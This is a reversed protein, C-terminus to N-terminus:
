SEALPREVDVELEDDWSPDPVGTIDAVVRAHWLVRNHSVAFTPAAGEPVRIRGSYRVHTGTNSASMPVAAEHLRHRHTKKDTGSGSVVEEEGIFQCTVKRIRGVLQRPLDVRVESTGGPLVRAPIFGAQAHGVAKQAMRRAIMGVLILAPVGAFILGWAFLFFSGELFASVVAGVGVVIFPAVFLAICGLASNTVSATHGLPLTRFPSSRPGAHIVLDEEARPDIKWPLDVRAKVRWDVNLLEGRYTVPGADPLAFDFPLRAPAGPLFRQAPLRAEAVTGQTRNGRGHTYWELEVVVASAQVEQDVEVIAHGRVREGCALATACHRQHELEVRLNCTSM